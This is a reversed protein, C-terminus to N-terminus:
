ADMKTVEIEKVSGYWRWSGDQRRNGSAKGVRRDLAGFEAIDRSKEAHLACKM